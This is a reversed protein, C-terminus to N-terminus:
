SGGQRNLDGMFGGISHRQLLMILIPTRLLSWLIAKWPIWRNQWYLKVSYKCKQSLHRNFDISGGINVQQFLLILLHTRIRYWQTTEWPFIMTQWYM